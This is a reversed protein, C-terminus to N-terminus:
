LKPIKKLLLLFFESQIRYNRKIQKHKIPM